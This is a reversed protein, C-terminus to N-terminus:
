KVLLVPVRSHSIVKQSQSGLLAGTLRGLGRTGMIILDIPRTDAVQLIAEAVPGELIETDLKGPITGIEHLANKLIEEAHTIHAAAVAQMNATGLYTPVPDFVTLVWLDAHMGRAMDGALRAAKISHDSGDVAVLITKFM